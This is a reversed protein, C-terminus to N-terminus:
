SLSYLLSVWFACLLLTLPKKKSELMLTGLKSLSDGGLILDAERVTFPRDALVRWRLM